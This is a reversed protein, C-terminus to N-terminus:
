LALGRRLFLKKKSFKSALIAMTGKEMFSTGNASFILVLDIRKFCLYFIFRLIRKLADLFRYVIKRPINSPSTSDLLIWDVENNLTSEILTQCAFMQGGLSGDESKKFSGVFLAKHKTINSM